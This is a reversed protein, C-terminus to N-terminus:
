RGVRAEILMIQCFTNLPGNEACVRGQMVAYVAVEDGVQLDRLPVASIVYAPSNDPLRMRFNYADIVELVAGTLLIKEGVYREPFTIVQLWYFTNYEAGIQLRLATANVPPAPELTPSSTPTYVPTFTPTPALLTASPRPTLTPAAPAAIQPTGVPPAPIHVPASFTCGGLWTVVWVWLFVRWM